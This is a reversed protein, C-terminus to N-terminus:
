TKPPLNTPRCTETVFRRIGELQSEEAPFQSVVEHTVRRGWAVDARTREQPSACGPRSWTRGHTRAPPIAHSCRKGGTSPTKSGSTVSHWWRGPIGAGPKRTRKFRRSPSPLPARRSARQYESAQAHDPYESLMAQATRDGRSLGRRRGSVHPHTRHGAPPEDVLRKWSATRGRRQGLRSVPGATGM